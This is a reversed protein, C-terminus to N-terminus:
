AIGAEARRGEGDIVIIKAGALCADTAISLLPGDSEMLRGGIEGGRALIGLFPASGGGVAVCVRGDAVVPEGLALPGPANENAAGACGRFPRLYGDFLAALRALPNLPAGEVRLSEANGTM